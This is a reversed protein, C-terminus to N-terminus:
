GSVVLENKVTRVGEVSSAILEAKQRNEPTDATGKLTVVGSMTDVNITLTKLNSDSELASKVRTTLTADDIGKGANATKGSMGTDPRPAADAARNPPPTVTNGRELNKGFKDSSPKEGCAALGLALAAAIATLVARSRQRNENLNM